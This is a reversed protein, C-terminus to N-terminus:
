TPFAESMVSDPHCANATTPAVPSQTEGNPFKPPCIQPAIPTAGQPAPQVKAPAVIILSAQHDNKKGPVFNLMWYVGYILFMYVHGGDSFMAETHGTRGKSAHCARDDSGRYAEAETIQFRFIAGDTFKRCIFVGVLDTTM